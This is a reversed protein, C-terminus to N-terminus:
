KTAMLRQAIDIPCSFSISIDARAFEVPGANISMSFGTDANNLNVMQGTINNILTLNSIFNQRKRSIRQSSKPKAPIKERNETVKGTAIDFRSAM